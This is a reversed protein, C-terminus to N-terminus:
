PNTEMTPLTPLAEVDSCAARVQPYKNAPFRLEMWFDVFDVMVVEGTAKHRVLQGDHFQPCDVECGSLLLAALILPRRTM